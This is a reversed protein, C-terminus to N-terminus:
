RPPWAETYICTNDDDGMSPSSRFTKLSYRLAEIGEFRLIEYLTRIYDAKQWRHNTAPFWPLDDTTAKEDLLEEPRPLDPLREWEAAGDRPHFTVHSNIIAAAEAANPPM